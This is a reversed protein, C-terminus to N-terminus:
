TDGKRFNFSNQGAAAKDKEFLRNLDKQSVGGKAMVDHLASM